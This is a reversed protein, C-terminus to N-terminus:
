LIRFFVDLDLVEPQKSQQIRWPDAARVFVRVGVLVLASACVRSLLLVSLNATACVRSTSVCVCVFVYVRTAVFAGAPSRGTYQGRYEVRHVLLHNFPRISGLSFMVCGCGLSRTTQTERVRWVIWVHGAVLQQMGHRWSGCSVRSGIRICSVVHLGVGSVSAHM